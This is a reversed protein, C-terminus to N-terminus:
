VVSASGPEAKARRRYEAPTSGTWRRFARYFASLGTASCSRSRGLPLTPENLYQLHARPARGRGGDGSSGASPSRRQAHPRGHGRRRAIRKSSPAATSTARAVQARVERLWVDNASAPAPADDALRMIPLTPPRAVPRRLDNAPLGARLWTRGALPAGFHAHPQTPRGAIVSSSARRGGRQRDPPASQVGMARARRTASCSMAAASIDYGAPVRAARGFVHAGEM